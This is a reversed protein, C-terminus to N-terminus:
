GAMRDSLVVPAVAEYLMRLERVAPDDPDAFTLAGAARRVADEAAQHADLSVSLKEESGDELDPRGYAAVDIRLKQVLDEFHAL